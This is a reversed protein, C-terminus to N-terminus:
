FPYFKWPDGEWLRGARGQTGAGTTVRSPAGAPPPVRSRADPLGPPRPYRQEQKSQEHPRPRRLWLRRGPGCERGRPRTRASSLAGHSM